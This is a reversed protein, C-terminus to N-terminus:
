GANAKRRRGTGANVSQAQLVGVTRTLEEVVGALEHLGAEVRDLREGWPMSAVPEPVREVIMGLGRVGRLVGEDRLMQMVKQVTTISVEFDDALCRLSPTMEGVPIRGSTIEAVLWGYIETWKYSAEVAAEERTLYQARGM